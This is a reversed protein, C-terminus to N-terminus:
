ATQQRSVLLQQTDGESASKTTKANDFMAIEWQMKTSLQNELNGSKKKTAPLKIKKKFKMSNEGGM